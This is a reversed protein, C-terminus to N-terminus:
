SWHACSSYMYTTPNWSKIINAVQIHKTKIGTSKLEHAINCQFWACKM